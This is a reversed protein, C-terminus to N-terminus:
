ERTASIVGTEPDRKDTMISIEDDLVQQVIDEFEQLTIHLLRKEMRQDSAILLGTPIKDENNVFMLQSSHIIENALEYIKLHKIQISDFCYNHLTAGGSESHFPKHFKIACNSLFMKVPINTRRLKDTVLKKEFMRRMVFAALVIALELLPMPNHKGKFDDGLLLENYHFIVGKKQQILEDRWHSIRWLDYSISM